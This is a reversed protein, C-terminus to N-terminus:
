SNTIKGAANTGDDKSFKTYNYSVGNSIFTGRTIQSDGMLDNLTNEFPESVAINGNERSPCGIFIPISNEADYITTLVTDDEVISFINQLSSIQNNSIPIISAILSTYNTGPTCPFVVPSEYYGQIYNQGNSVLYINNSDLLEKILISSSLSLNFSPNYSIKINSNNATQSLDSTIVPLLTTSIGSDLRSRNIWNIITNNDAGEGYVLNTNDEPYYDSKCQPPGVKSNTPSQLNWWSNMILKGEQEYNSPESGDSKNLAIFSYQPSPTSVQIKCIKFGSKALQTMALETSELDTYGLVVRCWSRCIKINAPDVFCIEWDNLGQKNFNARYQPALNSNKKPYFAINKKCCKQKCVM